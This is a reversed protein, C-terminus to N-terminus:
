AKRYTNLWEYLKGGPCITPKWDRHGYYERLPISYRHSLIKFLRSLQSLQQTSPLATDFHGIITIGINNRNNSGGCHAGQWKLPRGEFITGDRGVLFHYGIAAWGLHDVHYNEIRQIVEMDALGTASLHEGTHHLTIRKMAGMPDANSGVERQTWSSRPMVTLVRRAKEQQAATDSAASEPPTTEPYDVQQGYEPNSRCGAMGLM